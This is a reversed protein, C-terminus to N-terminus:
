AKEKLLPSWWQVHRKYWEVTEDISNDFSRKPIWGLKHIKECDLSYRFDHGLRDTVFEIRSEDMGMKSILSKTLNLNSVENGGGINYVEGVVGKNLLFFIAECNDEVFIWDRINQGTGYVPVKEDKLLKTLFFPIIKEPFQYPGFNNSSRTIIVPLDFTRLAAFCLMEGAAKSASYPSSPKLPDTERSSADFLGLSGYVEDTSVQVFLSIKKKRSVNLLNQVGLVNTQLFIDQNEISRDVHSEAAFNVVMDGNRIIEAILYPDCIDGQIFEYNSYRELSKATAPNAAYTMKDINVIKEYVGSKLASRVFNSGIFGCGGTVVLRM